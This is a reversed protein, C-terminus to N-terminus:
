CTVARWWRAHGRSDDSPHSSRQRRSTDFRAARPKDPAARERVVCEGARHRLPALSRPSIIYGEAALASNTKLASVYPLSHTLVGGRVRFHVNALGPRHGMFALKNLTTKTLVAVSDDDQACRRLLNIPHYLAQPASDFSRPPASRVWAARLKEVVSARCFSTSRDCKITMPVTIM